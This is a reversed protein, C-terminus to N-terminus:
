TQSKKAGSIAYSADVSSHLRHDEKPHFIRSFTQNKDFNFKQVFLVQNMIAGTHNIKLVSLLHIFIFNIKQM